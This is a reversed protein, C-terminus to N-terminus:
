TLYATVQSIIHEVIYYKYGGASHRIDKKRDLPVGPGKHMMMNSQASRKKEGERWAAYLVACYKKSFFSPPNNLIILNVFM